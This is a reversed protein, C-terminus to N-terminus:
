KHTLVSYQYDLFNLTTLISDRDEPKTCVLISGCDIWSLVFFATLSQIKIKKKRLSLHQFIGIKEETAPNIIPIRKKLAPQRWEGDIFLQRSPIQIAM